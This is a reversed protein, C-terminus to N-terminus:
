PFRNIDWIMKDRGQGPVLNDLVVAFEGELRSSLPFQLMFNRHKTLGWSRVMHYSGLPIKQRNWEIWINEKLGFLYKQLTQQYSAEGSLNGYVVDEDLSFSKGKKRPGLTLKFTLVGSHVQQISDIFNQPVSQNSDLDSHILATFLPPIYQLTLLHRGRELNQFYGAGQFGEILQSKTPQKKCGWLVLFAASFFLM